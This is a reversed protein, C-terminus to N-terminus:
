FCHIIRMVLEIFMVQVIVEQLPMFFDSYNFFHRPSFLVKLLEPDIKKGALYSYIAYSWGEVISYDVEPDALLIKILEYDHRFCAVQLPTMGYMDQGNRHVLFNNLRIMANLNFCYGKRAVLSLAKSYFCYKPCASLMRKDNIGRVIDTNTSPVQFRSLIKERSEKNVCGQNNILREFKEIDNYRFSDAMLNIYDNQDLGHQTFLIDKRKAYSTYLSKCTMILCTNSKYDLRSIFGEVIDVPMKHLKGELMDKRCIEM